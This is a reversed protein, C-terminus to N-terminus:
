RKEATGLSWQVCHLTCEVHAFLKHWQALLPLARGTAIDAKEVHANADSSIVNRNTSDTVVFDAIESDDSICDIECGGKLAACAVSIEDKAIVTGVLRYLRPDTPALSRGFGFAIEGVTDLCHSKDSRRGLIKM